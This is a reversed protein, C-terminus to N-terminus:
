SAPPESGSFKVADAGSIPGAVRAQDSVYLKVRREFTLPGNVTAGAGIVVQPVHNGGNGFHIGLIENGSGSKEVRIGGDVVANGTIRIDGNVTTIGHGVHAGDIDIRGNVNILAGDVAAGEALSLSGNVTKADGAIKADRALTIDGNVTHAVGAQAGSDLHISGNVTTAKDAKAHSELSVSGNVTHADSVSTGAPVDVSGNVGNVCATTALSLVLLAMIYMCLRTHRM